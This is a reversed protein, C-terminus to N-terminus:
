DSKGFARELVEAIEVQKTAANLVRKPRLQDRTPFLDVEDQGNGEGGDAQRVVRVVPWAFREADRGGSVSV